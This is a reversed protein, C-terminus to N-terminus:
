EEAASEQRRRKAPRQEDVVGDEIDHNAATADQSGDHKDTPTGDVNSVGDNEGGNEAEGTDNGGDGESAAADDEEDEIVIPVPLSQDYISPNAPPPTPGVDSAGDTSQAVGKDLEASTSPPV